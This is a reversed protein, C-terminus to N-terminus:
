KRVVKDGVKVYVKHYLERLSYDFRITVPRTLVKFTGTKVILYTNLDADLRITLGCGIDCNIYVERNGFARTSTLPLTVNFEINELELLIKELEKESNVELPIVGKPIDDFYIDKLDYKDNFYKGNLFNDSNALSVSPIFMLLSLILLFSKKINKM